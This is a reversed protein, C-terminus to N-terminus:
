FFYFQQTELRRQEDIVQLSGFVHVSKLVIVVRMKLINDVFLVAVACSTISIHVQKSNFLLPDKIVTAGCLEVMLEM